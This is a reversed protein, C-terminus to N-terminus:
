QREITPTNYKTNEQAETPSLGPRDCLRTVKPFHCRPPAPSSLSDFSLRCRALEPMKNSMTLISVRVAEDSGLYGAMSREEEVM